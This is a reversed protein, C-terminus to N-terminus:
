QAYSDFAGYIEGSMDRGQVLSTAEPASKWFPDAFVDTNDNAIAANAGLTLGALALVILTRKM